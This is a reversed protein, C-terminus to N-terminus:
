LNVFTLLAACFFKKYSCTNKSEAGVLDVLFIMFSSGQIVNCQEGSTNFRFEPRHADDESELLSPDMELEDDMEDEDPHNNEIDGIDPSVATDAVDENGDKVEAAAVSKCKTELESKKVETQGEGNHLVTLKTISAEHHLIM